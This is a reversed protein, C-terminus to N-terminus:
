GAHKHAREYIIVARRLQHQMRATEALVPLGSVNVIIRAQVNRICTASAAAAAAAGTRNQQAFAVGGFRWRLLTCRKACEVCAHAHVVRSGDVGCLGAEAGGPAVGEM